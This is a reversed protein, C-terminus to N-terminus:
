WGSRQVPHKKRWKKLQNNVKRLEAKTFNGSRDMRQIIREAGFINGCHLGQAEAYRLWLEFDAPAAEAHEKLLEVATGLRRELLLKEIRDKARSTDPVPPKSKQLRELYVDLPDDSKKLPPEGGAHVVMKKPVGPALSDRRLRGLFGRRKKASRIPLRIWDDVSQRLFKLLKPSFTEEANEIMREAAARNKLDQAYVRVLQVFAHENLSDERLTEELWNVAEGFRGERCLVEVKNSLTSPKFPAQKIQFRAADFKFGAAAMWGQVQAVAAMRHDYHIEESQCLDRLITLADEPQRRYLITTELAFLWIPLAREEALLNQRAAQWAPEVEGHQRWHRLLTIEPLRKKRRVKEGFFDPLFLEVIPGGLVESFVPNKTYFLYGSFSTAAFLAGTAVGHWQSGMFGLRHWVLAGMAGGAFMIAVYAGLLMKVAQVHGALDPSSIFRRLLFATVAVLGWSWIGGIFHTGVFWSAPPSLICGPPLHWAMWGSALVLGFHVAKLRPYDAFHSDCYYGQLSFALALISLSFFTNGVQVTELAIVTLLLLLYAPFVWRFAVALTAFDDNEPDRWFLWIRRVLLLAVFGALLWHHLWASDLLRTTASDDATGAAPASHALMPAVFGLLIFGAVTGPRVGAHERGMKTPKQKGMM